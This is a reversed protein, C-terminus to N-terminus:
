PVIIDYKPVEMNVELIGIETFNHWPKLAIDDHIYSDWNQDPLVQVVFTDTISIVLVYM